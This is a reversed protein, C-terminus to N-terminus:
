GASIMAVGLVILGVGANQLGRLREKFILAALVVTVVPYLSSIVSVLSLMGKTTATTYAFAAAADLIGIVFIVPLHTAGVKLVPRKYFVAPLIILLFSVRSITAAWLPDVAGAPDMVVFFTGFGLAAGIAPVIGRALHRRQKFPNKELSILVGGCIAIVIGLGQFLHPVEGRILGATVPLLVCLASVPVVISVAGVALGRYLCYLGGVGAAGGLVAFLLNPDRPIPVGRVGACILFVALQTMSTLVMLTMAPIVRIKMGALFQSTGWCLCAMLALNVALM